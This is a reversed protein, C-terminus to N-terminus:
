PLAPGSGFVLTAFRQVRSHSSSEGISASDPLTVAVPLVRRLSAMLMRTAWMSLWLGVAGRGARPAARRHPTASHPAVPRWRTVDSALEQRRVHRAGAVSRSTPCAVLLVVGPLLMLLLALGAFM